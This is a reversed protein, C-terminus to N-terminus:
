FSLRASLEVSRSFPYTTGRERKVSSIYFLDNVLLELRLRNLHLAKLQESKFDYAVTFSQLDFYNLTEVFRSTQYPVSQDAIDKYKAHNGPERWRSEFVRLDANLRPNSGEVRTAVTENYTVGGLSYGFMMNVSLQKWTLYSGIRGYGIPSKDGFIVKDRADYTFSYSGDRKIFIEKGTAPDIGASPVVKLASLSQGEEYIPQPAVGEKNQNEENRKKLANSISKIKNKNYSYNFSLGWYWDKTQIPVVRTQVEFGKNEIAGINEVATAVGISPAKTVDLLLNDTNKVYFDLTLDWRGKFMNLDVGINSNLTREWTLETNGITKPVAGVGKGYNLSSLYEYTTLAQYPSFSVNGLYGMSARLKLLDIPVNKMFKEKHINWGGGISWFPAFRDNKGFKSSGEYRYILDLFYREDYISNVNVFVGVSRDIQDSGSPHAGTEYKTGFAPHSLKDSFYGVSTYSSNDYDSADINAGGILSTFLKGFMYSNYSLMLKGSYTLTNGNSETLQGRSSIDAKKLEARSLPSLFGMRETKYKSFAFSADVRLDKKIWVQVDTTNMVYFQKQTQYSGLSAEYLPNSLEYSLEKRLTGDPNYPSDYPNMDIYNSFSGYPSDNSTVSNVTTSNSIYLKQNLNYSLRFNTSLRERNSGKMVGEENNYRVGVTYRANDDGGGMSLNHNQSIGNRLPKSLWDTNQGRHVLNYKEAYLRDLEYQDELKGSTANYLGALREYELKQEANLLHYDSLDPVSLRLTGSYDFKLKGGKLTKTTIVVVGASAKAGYLASASADKLVTVSEIQNMDMDYIYEVSVIGGDVVFVPMNASGEFSARGRIMIDPRSNPDSGSANNNEVSMGPVFAQISELVNKTGVSLLEDRKITTQSGTYSNKQKSIFGTVVVDGINNIDEEMKITISEGPKVTMEKTKFGIYSVQIVVPKSITLTFKGDVDTIIGTRGEKIKVNVGILAEGKMDTVVGRVINRNQQVVAVAGMDSASVAHAYPVSLTCLSAVLATYYRQRVSQKNTTIKM